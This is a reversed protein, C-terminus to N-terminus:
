HSLYVAKRFTRSARSAFEDKATGTPLQQWREFSKGDMITLIVSIMSPLSTAQNPVYALADLDYCLFTEAIIGDIVRIYGGQDSAEDRDGYINWATNSDDVFARQFENKELRYGIELLSSAAAASGEGSTVFWLSGANPQHLQIHQGPIDNARAVASQLDRTIVDLVLHGNEYLETTNLTVNWAGQVNAFYKFLILMMFALLGMAVLMELMTFRHRGHRQTRRKGACALIRM